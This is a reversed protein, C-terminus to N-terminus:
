GGTPSPGPPPGSFAEPRVGGGGPAASALGDSMSNRKGGSGERSVGPAARASKFTRSLARSVRSPRVGAVSDLVQHDRLVRSGSTWGSERSEDRMLRLFSLIPGTAEIEISAVPGM